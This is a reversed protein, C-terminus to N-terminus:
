HQLARLLSALGFGVLAAAALINVRRLIAANLRRRLVAITTSLAVWWALSGAFLGALVLNIDPAAPTAPGLVAAIAGLMLVPQMPNTCNFAVASGYAAAVSGAPPRQGPVARRRLVRLAFLLMLAAGLIHMATEHRHLWPGVQHLGSLLLAGCGVHVTSAGAGTGVGTWVGQALTRHICLMGMPGIPVAVSLGILAGSIVFAMDGM